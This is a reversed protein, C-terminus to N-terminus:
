RADIKPVSCSLTLVRGGPGLERAIGADCGGEQLCSSIDPGGCLNVAREVVFDACATMTVATRSLM